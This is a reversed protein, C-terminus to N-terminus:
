FLSLLRYLIPLTSFLPLTQTHKSCLCISQFTFPLVSPGSPTPRLLLLLDPTSNCMSSPRGFSSTRVSESYPPAETFSLTIILCLLLITVTFSKLLSFLDMPIHSVSPNTKYKLYEQRQRPFVLSSERSKDRGHIDGLYTGLTRRPLFSFSYVSIEFLPNVM